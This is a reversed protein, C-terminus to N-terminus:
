GAVRGPIREASRARRVRRATALMAVVVPITLPIRAEFLDARVNSPHTLVWGAKFVAAPLVFVAATVLLVPLGLYVVRRWPDAVKLLLIGTANGVFWAAMGAVVIAAWVGPSGASIMQTEITAEM